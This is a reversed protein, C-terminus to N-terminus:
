IKRRPTPSKSLGCRAVNEGALKRAAMQIKRLREASDAAVHVNAGQANFSVLNGAFAGTAVDSVLYVSLNTM